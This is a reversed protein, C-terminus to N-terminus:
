PKDQGSAIDEPTLIWYDSHGNAVVVEITLGTDRANDDLPFSTVGDPDIEYTAIIDESADYVRVEGEVPLRGNSFRAEVNVTNGEVSAFVRLAHAMASSSAFSLVLFLAPLLPTRM